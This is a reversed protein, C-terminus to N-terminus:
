QTEGETEISIANHKSLIYMNASSQIEVSRAVPLWLNTVNQASEPSKKNTCANRVSM